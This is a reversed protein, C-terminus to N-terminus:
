DVIGLVAKFGELGQELAHPEARFESLDELALELVTQKNFLKMFRDFAVLDFYDLLQQLDVPTMAHPIREIREKSQKFLGGWSSKSDRVILIDPAVEFSNRMQVTYISFKGNEDQFTMLCIYNANSVQNVNYMSRFMNWQGIDTFPVMELYEQIKSATQHDVDLGAVLNAAFANFYKGDMNKIYKIEADEVFSNFGLKSIKKVVESHVEGDFQAKMQRYSEVIAKDLWNTKEDETAHVKTIAKAQIHPIAEVFNNLQDVESNLKQYGFYLFGNQIAMVEDTSFGRPNYVDHCSRFVLLKRTCQRTVVYQQIPTGRVHVKMYAM